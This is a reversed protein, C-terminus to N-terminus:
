YFYVLLAVIVLVIVTLIMVHIAIRKMISLFLIVAIAGAIISVLLDPITYPSLLDILAQAFHHTSKLMEISSDLMELGSDKLNEAEEETVNLFNPDSFDLEDVFDDAITEIGEEVLGELQEAQGYASPILLSVYVLSIILAKEV